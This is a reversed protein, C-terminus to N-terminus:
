DGLWFSAIKYCIFCCSLTLMGMYSRFSRERRSAIRSFNNQWSLTREVAWRKRYDRSLYKAKMNKRLPTCIKYNKQRPIIGIYAKDALIKVKQSTKIQNAEITQHFLKSDHINAEAAAIAIPIGEQTILISRKTGKKGRDTPNRGTKEGGYRSKSLSCDIMQIKKTLVKEEELFTLQHNWLEAYAGKESWIMHYHHATSASIQYDKPLLKWPIGTKLVYAIAFFIKKLSARPRGRKSVPTMRLAIEEFEPWIKEPYLFFKSTSM